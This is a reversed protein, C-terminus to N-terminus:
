PFKEMWYHDQDELLKIGGRYRYGLKAYFEHATISASVVVRNSRLFLDDQELSEVIARGVGQGHYEPLVFITLLISETGSGEFGAIAGTGVIRDGDWAVYMHGQAAIARIKEPSYDRALEEIGDAPYHRINVERLTRGVVQSVAEADPSQFRRIEM